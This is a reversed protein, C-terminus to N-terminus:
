LGKSWGKFDRNKFSNVYEIEAANLIKTIFAPGQMAKKIRENEVLDIGIM